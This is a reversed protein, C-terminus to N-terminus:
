KGDIMEQYISVLQKAIKYADHYKEVYARSQRGIEHRQKRDGLINELVDVLDDPNANVIPLDTPYKSVLSPKLYCITPKGFAMAELAAVGYAGLVLQDVVIDCNRIMDLAESHKLGYILQFDFKYKGKLQEIASLIEKTGKLTKNSPTHIILPRQKNPDPYKPEFESLILRTRTRYPTPFFGKQIYTETEIGPVLCEFGYRAMCSQNKLSRGHSSHALDPNNQYVKALYPNDVIAIEPIRIDSGWVEVIRAKNLFASLWLDINAPLSSSMFHLHVVDTWRIASQVANWWALTQLGWQIPHQKRTGITYNETGNNEQISNSNLVLCRAEVGIDRLARVTISAQSAINVPLHLVRM